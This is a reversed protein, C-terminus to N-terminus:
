TREEEEAKTYVVVKGFKDHIEVRSTTGQFLMFIPSGENPTFVEERTASPKHM